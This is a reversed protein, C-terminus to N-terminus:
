SEKVPAYELMWNVGFRDTFSSFLSGWFMIQPEMEIKGQFSLDKFLKDLQEKSDTQICIYSNNGFKLDYGMSSPADTGMLSHAGGMVPLEVHMVLNKDSDSLSPQGEQPPIEGMRHIGDVFEGGFVSRYFLFAEETERNFNLYTNVKAM